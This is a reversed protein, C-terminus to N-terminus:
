LVGKSALQLRQMLEPNDYRKLSFGDAYSPLSATAIWKACLEGAACSAMTGFGSMACNMFAGEMQMPGILPWNENTM